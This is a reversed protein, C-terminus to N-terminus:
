KAAHEQEGPHRLPSTAISVLQWKGNKKFWVDQFFGDWEHVKADSAIKAKKVWRGTSVATDNFLRVKVDEIREDLVTQGEFPKVFQERDRPGMPTQWIADPSIYENAFAPDIGAKMQAMRNELEIITKEDSSQAVCISTILLLTFLAAALKM